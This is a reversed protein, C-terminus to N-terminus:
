KFKLLVPFQFRVTLDPFDFFIVLTFQKASLKM